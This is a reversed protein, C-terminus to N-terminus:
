VAVYSIYKGNRQRVVTPVFSENTSCNRVSEITNKRTNGFASMFAAVAAKYDGKTQVINKRTIPEGYKENKNWTFEFSNM